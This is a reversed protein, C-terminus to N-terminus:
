QDRMDPQFSIPQRHPRTGADCQRRPPSLRCHSLRGTGPLPIYGQYRPRVYATEISYSTSRFFNDTLQNLFTMKGHVADRQNAEVSETCHRRAPAAQSLYATSSPLISMQASLPYRMGTEGLVTRMRVDDKLCVTNSNVPHAGFGPRSYNSYTYAFPCYAFSDDASMKEYIAIPNMSYIAEPVSIGTRAARGLVASRHRPRLSRVNSQCGSLQWSLRVHGHLQSFSRCSIGAHM